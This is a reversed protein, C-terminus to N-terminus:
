YFRKIKSKHEHKYFLNMKRKMWIKLLFMEYPKM